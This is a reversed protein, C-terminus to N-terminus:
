RGAPSLSIARTLVGQAYSRAGAAVYGLTLLQMAHLVGDAVRRNRCAVVMDGARAHAALFTRAAATCTDPLGIAAYADAQLVRVQHRTEPFRSLFSALLAVASDLEEEYAVQSIWALTDEDECGGAFAAAAVRDLTELDRAARAARIRQLFDDITSADTM